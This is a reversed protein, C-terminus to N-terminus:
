WSLAEPAATFLPRLDRLLPQLRKMEAWVTPQGMNLLGKKLQRLRPSRPSKDKLGCYETLRARYSEYASKRADILYERANLKLVDITHKARLFDVTGPPFLPIFHFTGVLDLQILLLADETRPDIFAPLGHPPPVVPDAKGRTVEVLRSQPLVVAYRGRKGSNCPGCSYLYNEWVFVSEPYLDKPKVHEVEDAVSDECYMCRRAGRCMLALTSRVVAFTSNAATNRSAFRSKALAVRDSYSGGADIESQYNQLRTNAAPLLDLTPIRIM